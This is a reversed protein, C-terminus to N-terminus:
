GAKSVSIAPVGALATKQSGAGAGSRPVTHYDLILQLLDKRALVATNGLPTTKATKFLAKDTPIYMTVAVNPDSLQKDLSASRILLQMVNAKEGKLASMVNPYTQALVTGALLRPSSTLLPSPM